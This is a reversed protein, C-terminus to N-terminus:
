IRWLRKSVTGALSHGTRIMLRKPPNQSPSQTEIQEAFKAFDAEELPGDATIVLINRDNLREFHLM